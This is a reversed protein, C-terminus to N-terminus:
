SQYVRKYKLVLEDGESTIEFEFIDGQNIDYERVANVPITIDLSDAGHHDRAKLTKSM